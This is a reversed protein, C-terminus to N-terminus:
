TRNARQAALACQQSLNLKSDALAGLERDTPSSELREDGLSCTYGPNNQGLHLIHCKTKNFKMCNTVAWGELKDLDRQLAERSELSDATYLKTNDALKSLM